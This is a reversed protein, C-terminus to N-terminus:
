RTARRRTAAVGGAEPEGRSGHANSFVIAAPVSAAAFSRHWALAVLALAPTESCQTALASAFSRAAKPRASRPPPQPVVPAAVVVVIAPLVEELVVVGPVGEVVVVEVVSPRVTLKRVSTWGIKAVRQARGRQWVPGRGWAVSLKM